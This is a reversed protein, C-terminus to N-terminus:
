ESKAMLEDLAQLRKEIYETVAQTTSGVPTGSYLQKEYDLLEYEIISSKEAFLKDLAEVTFVTERLANYRAKIEPQYAELLRKWLLNNQKYVLNGRDDASPLNYVHWCPTGTETIGLSNILDSFSPTWRGKEDTIWVTGNELRRSAGLVQATLYFDILAEPDTHEALRQKFQKDTATQVFGVFAEFSEEAWDTSEGTCHLFAFGTEREGLGPRSFVPLATFDCSDDSALLSATQGATKYQWSRDPLLLFVGQYIGGVFLQVPIGAQPIIKSGIREACVTNWVTQGILDRCKLPDLYQACLRYTSQEGWGLDTRYASRDSKYYLSLSYDQKEYPGNAILSAGSTFYSGHHDFLLSGIGEEEFSYYLKPLTSLNDSERIRLDGCVTCYSYDEGKRILDAETGHIWDSYPHATKSQYASFFRDGCSCTNITYGISTCTAPIVKQDYVHVHASCGSLLLSGGICILIFLRIFRAKKM